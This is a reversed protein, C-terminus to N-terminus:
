EGQSTGTILDIASFILVEFDNMNLRLKELNKRDSESFLLTYMQMLEHSGPNEKEGLIGMIQLMTAADANVEYEVKRIKIKPNGDFDLKDTIDLVKSM